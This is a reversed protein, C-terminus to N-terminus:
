SGVVVRRIEGIRFVAAITLAAFFMTTLIPKLNRPM